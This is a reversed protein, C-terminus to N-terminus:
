RDQEIRRKRMDQKNKSTKRVGVYTRVKGIKITFVERGAFRRCDQKNEQIDKKSRRIYLVIGM